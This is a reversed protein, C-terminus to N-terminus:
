SNLMLLQDANKRAECFMWNLTEFVKQLNDPAVIKSKNIIFKNDELKGFEWENGDTVLGYITINKIKNLLKKDFKVSTKNEKEINLIKDMPTLSDKELDEKIKKINALQAAYMEAGVQGWGQVFDNKKAEGLCVIPLKYRLEGEVAPALIYDPVGTLGLEKDATFQLQSWVPLNNIKALQYVIPFIIRECIATESSFSANTDYFEMLTELFYKNPKFIKEEIFNGKQYKLNLKVCVDSIDKFSKFSKRKM